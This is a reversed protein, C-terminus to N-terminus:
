LMDLFRGLQDSIEDVCAAPGLNSLVVLVTHKRLDRRLCTAFGEWEGLHEVVRRPRIEWGFGYDISAGNNLRGSIYAQEYIDAPMLTGKRLAADWRLLDRASAHIGGDGFVGDLYNMDSAVRRGFCGFRRRMGTARCQLTCVPCTLNYAASDKMGLPAFIEEAMFDVFPRGSARAIIEGLLVYGTNSYEFRDGPAFRAPPRHTVFLDIMDATTLTVGPDWYRDALWMHDPLGSTHHLLHRITVGGYAALEPIHHALADDIGLKGRHALMVIGLGTFPKSVSALSFSANGVLPVRGEADAFGCHRELLINGEKAILVSGNFVQRADLTDLWDTVAAIRQDLSGSRPGALTPIKRLCCRVAAVNVLRDVPARLARLFPIKM